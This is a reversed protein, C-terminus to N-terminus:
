AAKEPKAEADAPSKAAKEKKPKEAKPTPEPKIAEMLGDKTFPGMYYAIIREVPQRTKLNGESELAAALDQREIEKGIGYENMKDYIVKAQPALKEDERLTRLLKVRHGM